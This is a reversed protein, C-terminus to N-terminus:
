SGRQEPRSASMSLGALWGLLTGIALVAGLTPSLATGLAADLSYGGPGVVGVVLAVILYTFPLESGGETNWVKPWHVKAIATLMVAAVGLSGLPNFMGLALLVGGGFEGVGALWAWLRPPRYGISGLWGGTAAIGRGGFWGFLKQAGHGAVLLGVTLRLVLLAGDMHM